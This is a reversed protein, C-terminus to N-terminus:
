NMLKGEQIVSLILDTKVNAKTFVDAIMDESCVWDIHRVKGSEMQEKIWAILHRTTKEDIQKTSHLSDLLTKTDIKVDVPFQAESVQGTYIEQYMRALYISDELGRELSRTEATKVSKCVQQITKSKWILPSMQGSDNALAIYRGGISKVKNPCNRYSSDTFSLIKLTEFKGLNSFKVTVKEKQAKKLIKNAKKIDAYTADM